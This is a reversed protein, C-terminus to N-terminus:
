KKEAPTVSPAVPKAAEPKAAAPAAPAAPKVEPKAAAPAAPKAEPKAVPKAVPKAQPKAQPKAVPKLIPSKFAAAKAGTGPLTGAPMQGFEPKLEYALLELATDLVEEEVQSRTANKFKEPDSSAAVRKSAAKLERLSADVLALREELSDTLHEVFNAQAAKIAAKLKEESLDPFEKKIDAECKEIGRALANNLELVLQEHAYDSLRGGMAGVKEEIKPMRDLIEQYVRQSFDPIVKDVLQRQSVLLEQRLQAELDAERNLEKLYGIPDNSLREYYGHYYIYLNGVFCGLILLLLLAGGLAVLRQWRRLGQTEVLMQEIKTLRAELASDAGAGAKNNIDAM